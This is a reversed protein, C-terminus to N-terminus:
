ILHVLPRRDLVHGAVMLASRIAEDQEQALELLHVGPDMGEEQEAIHNEVVGQEGRCGIADVEEDVRAESDLRAGVREGQAELGCHQIRKKKMCEQGVPDIRDQPPEM